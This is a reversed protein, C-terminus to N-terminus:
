FPMFPVRRFKPDAPQQAVNQTVQPALPRAADSPTLPRRLTRHHALRCTYM